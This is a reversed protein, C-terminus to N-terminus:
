TVFLCWTVLLSRSVPVWVTPARPRPKLWYNWQAPRWYGGGRSFAHREAAGSIQPLRASRSQRREEALVVPSHSLLAIGAAAIAGGALQFALLGPSLALHEHFVAAAFIVSCVPEVTDIVPLSLSLPGANFASQGFLGSLIGAAMLAYPEWTALVGAGRSTLLDVGSKAVANVFAYIVATAAALWIVNAIGRARLAVFASLMILATIGALAPAWALLSPACVGGTPPSVAVFIAMGSGVGLGGIISKRM